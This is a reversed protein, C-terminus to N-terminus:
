ILSGCLIHFNSESKTDKDTIHNLFHSPELSEELSQLGARDKLIACIMRGLNWFHISEAQVPSKCKLSSELLYEGWFARSM